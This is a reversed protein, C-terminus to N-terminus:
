EGTTDQLQQQEVEAIIEQMFGTRDRCARLTLERSAPNKTLHAKPTYKAGWIMLEVLVPLLDLGKRTLQYRYKTGVHTDRRKTIIGQRELVQLRDALINTAIKEGSSLFDGYYFKGRMTLDRLILLTWRDGLIDLANSIPCGSRRKIERM